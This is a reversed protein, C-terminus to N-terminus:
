GEIRERVRQAVAQRLEPPFGTLGPTDNSELLVFQGDSTQLFDLGLLDASFHQMARRTYDVLLPPVAIIEYSATQTNAKWFRGRRSMAWIQEGVAVCRIDQVYEIAPEITVYDDSLFVLDKFDTWAAEDQLRAKGWGGHYNGIKGVVPFTPQLRELVQEGLAMSCPVVPLEAERLEQLMALRDYSRLLVHVPNVCTVRAFRLLELVTRHSPHPKIAGVRWLVHEVKLTQASDFVWLHGDHYLWQSSQLRIQYVDLGPFYTQWDPEGNVVILAQM